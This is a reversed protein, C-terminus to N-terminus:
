ECRRRSSGAADEAFRRSSMQRRAPSARPPTPMLSGQWSNPTDIRRPELTALVAQRILYHFRHMPLMPHRWEDITVPHRTLGRSMARGGDIDHPVPHGPVRRHGRGRRLPRLRLPRRRRLPGGRLQGPRPKHRGHGGPDGWRPAHGAGSRQHLPLRRPGADHDNALALAEDETDFPAIAVVPGFIEERMVRADQPVEALVVPTFFHGDGPVPGGAVVVRAGRTVADDVLAALRAVHRESIMPGLGVGARTGRGIRVGAVRAALRRTFEAYIPRQIYFRNAATCAAGGNRMKAAFAGEVAEDMDADAFVVFPACGGLEASVRLVQEASQAILHRGVAESGTFTLKRIRGDRLLPDTAADESSVVINLVGAPLGAEILIRGLALASLPTLSSPRLVVTCGAALAPGIGRAPVALPFNWPTIVLCPGVPTRVVLHQSHGDPSAATRGAVRVAEEGFWELYDAAFEVEARSEALPKGMEATLINALTEIEDRLRDAAHRLIRSRERPASGAWSAQAAVAAELAALCDGLTADAVEALIRGTAPDGVGLTRGGSVPVFRGDILLHRPALALAADRDSAGHSLARSHSETIQTPVM